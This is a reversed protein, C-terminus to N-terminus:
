ADSQTELAKALLPRLKRARAPNLSVAWAVRGTLHEGFRDRGGVNAADIGRVSANHLAARLREYSPRDLNTKENVVIGAIRQRHGKGMVLTKVPRINFGEDHAIETALM